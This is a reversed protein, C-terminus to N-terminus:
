MWLAERRHPHAQPGETHEWWPLLERLVRVWVSPRRPCLFPVSHEPIRPIKFLSIVLFYVMIHGNVYQIYLLVRLGNAIFYNMIWLAPCLSLSEGRSVGSEKWPKKKKLGSCWILSNKEPWYRGQNAWQPNLSQHPNLQESFIQITFM